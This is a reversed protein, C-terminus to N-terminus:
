NISATTRDNIEKDIILKQDRQRTADPLASTVTWQLAM